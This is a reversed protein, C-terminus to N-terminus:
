MIEFPSQSCCAVCFATGNWLLPYSSSFKVIIVDDVGKFELLGFCPRVRPRCALQGNFGNQYQDLHAQHMGSFELYLRRAIERKNRPHINGFSANRDGLDATIALATNPLVLALEQALRLFASSRRMSDVQQSDYRRHAAIWHYDPTALGVPCLQVVLFPLDPQGFSLRLDAIIAQLQCQYM